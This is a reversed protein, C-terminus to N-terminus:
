LVFNVVMAFLDQHLHNSGNFFPDLAPFQNTLIGTTEAEHEPPRNVPDDLKLFYLVGDKNALIMAVKVPMGNFGQDFAKAYWQHLGMSLFPNCYPM